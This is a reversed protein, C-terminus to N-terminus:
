HKPGTPSSTGGSPSATIGGPHQELNVDLGPIPDGGGIVNKLSNKDLKEVNSKAASSENTKKGFIKKFM